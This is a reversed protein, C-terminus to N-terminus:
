QLHKLPAIRANVDALIDVGALVAPRRSRYVKGRKHAILRFAVWREQYAIHFTEQFVAEGLHGVLM